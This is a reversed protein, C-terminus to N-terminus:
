TRAQTDAFISQVLATGTESLWVKQALEMTDNDHHLLGRDRLLRLRPKHAQRPHYEGAKWIAFLLGIHDPSLQAIIAREWAQKGAYLPALDDSPAGASIEFEGLKAGSTRRLFNLAEDLFRRTQNAKLLAILILLSAIAFFQQEKYLAFLCLVAMTCAMAGDSSKM